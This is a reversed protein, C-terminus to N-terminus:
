SAVQNRGAAKAQYLAADAAEVLDALRKDETPVFSAAGLSLTVYNIVDSNIHELRLSAVAQRLKEAVKVAEELSANPLLCAFEEGGFRALKGEPWMFKEALKAAVKRLCVDGQQHGYHDNYKKFYDIDLMIFALPQQAELCTQWAADLKEDLLRRNAIGTLGDQFALLELQHSQRTLQTNAKALEQNTVLLEDQALQIQTYADKRKIQVAFLAVFSVLVIFLYFFILKTTLSHLSALVTDLNRSIVITINENLETHSPVFSQMMVLRREGTSNVDTQFLSTEMGSELHHKLTSDYSVLNRGLLNLNNKAAAVILGSSNVIGVRTDAAIFVESLLVALHDNSLKTILLGHFKKDPTKMKSAYFLQLSDLKKADRLMYFFNSPKNAVLQNLLSAEAPTLAKPSNDSMIRVAGQTDILKVDESLPLIQTFANLRKYIFPTRDTQTALGDSVENKINIHAFHISLLQRDLSSKVREAQLALNENVRNIVAQKESLFWLGIFVLLLLLGFVLAVWETVLGKNRWNKSQLFATKINDIKM